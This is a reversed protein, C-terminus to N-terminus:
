MAKVLNEQHVLSEFIVGAVHTMVLLLTFNATIEHAEECSDENAQSALGALTEANQDAAYVILLGRSVTATLGILLGVIMIAAGVPNHGVYRKAKMQLAAKLYLFSQTPSCLFHTFRAYQNGVFGWILRFVILGIVLYGAYVYVDLLEDETFYATFFGAALSFNQHAYGM